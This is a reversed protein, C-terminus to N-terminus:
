MGASAKIANLVANLNTKDTSNLSYDIVRETTAPTIAANVVTAGHARVAIPNHSADYFIEM